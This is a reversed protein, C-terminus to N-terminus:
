QYDEFKKVVQEERSTVDGNALAQKDYLTGLATTLKGIDEIKIASMKKYLAKRDDNTLGETRLVESLLNDLDEESSLAREIRRELLDQAQEIIKWAKDIFSKKKEERLKVFKKSEETPEEELKKKWTRLTNQKIDLQRAIESINNNTALLAIAKEKIDDNYKKGRM